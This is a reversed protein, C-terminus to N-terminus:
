KNVDFTVVEDVILDDGKFHFKKASGSFKYEGDRSYKKYMTGTISSSSGAFSISYPSVMEGSVTTSFYNPVNISATLYNTGTAQFVVTVELGPAEDGLAADYYIGEGSFSGVWSELTCDSCTKWNDGTKDKDGCGAMFLAM